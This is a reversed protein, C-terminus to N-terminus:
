GAARARELLREDILAARDQWTSGPAVALARAASALRAALEDDRLVHLVGAAIAAPDADVLLGAGTPAVLGSTEATATAIVPKGFSLYDVLKVPRALDTYRNIPRPIVCARVDALLTALDDRTGARREVWEPLGQGGLLAPGIARLRAEPMEGRVMTMAELLRDFGDAVNMAGVYGVIPAGGVGLDPASPDTGPPLLVAGELGLAEALGASPAFHVTALSRLARTTVRWAADSLRQRLGSAPYIDRFLQYADRFYVGVPRGM